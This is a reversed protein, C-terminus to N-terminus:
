RPHRGNGPALVSRTRNQPRGPDGGRSSALEVPLWMARVLDVLPDRDSRVVLAATRRSGTVLEAGAAGFVRVVSGPGSMSAPGHRYEMAAYAETQAGAAERLKRGADGISRM